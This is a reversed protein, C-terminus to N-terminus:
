STYEEGITHASGAPYAMLLRSAALLGDLLSVNSIYWKGFAILDGRNDATKIASDRAYGACTILPKPAWLERIFDNTEDPVGDLPEIAHLYALDPHSSKLSTIFHSFQPIPNDM